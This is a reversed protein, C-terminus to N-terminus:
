RDDDVILKSGITLVTLPAPLTQEIFGHTELETGHDYAIEKVATLLPVAGGMTYSDGFNELIDSESTSYGVKVLASRYLRIFSKWVRTLSGTTPGAPSNIDIPMTKITSTYALGIQAKTTAEQLTISGSTVASEVVGVYGNSWAAVTEGELHDLGSITSASAGSYTLASDVFIADVSETDERFYNSLVEVYQKTGGDIGRSVILYLQNERDGPICAISKVATATGGITHKHWGIVEQERLYTLGRLLGDETIVWVIGYPEEQYTIRNFKGVSLHESLINLNNATQSISQITYIAELLKRQHHHIFITANGAEIPLSTHAANKIVSRININTPTIAEDLTSAKAEFITGKTGIL